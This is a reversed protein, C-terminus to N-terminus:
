GDEGWRGCGGEKCPRPGGHLECDHAAKCEVGRTKDVVEAADVAMETRDDDVLVHSTDGMSFETELINGLMVKFKM